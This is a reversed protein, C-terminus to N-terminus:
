QVIDLSDTKKGSVAVKIKVTAYGVPAWPAWGGAGSLVCACTYVASL